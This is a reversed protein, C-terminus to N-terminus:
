FNCLRSVYVNSEEYVELLKYLYHKIAVGLELSTLPRAASPIDTPFSSHLVSQCFLKIQWSYYANPFLRM